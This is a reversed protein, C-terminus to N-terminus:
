DTQKAKAGLEKQIIKDIGRISINQSANFDANCSYGCKLCHFHAQDKRNAKDIHGCRSCRQSTYRPDIMSVAIGTEKAKTKIKQQLDYYTWHRLFKPFDTSQRIGSLDEMQITGCGNKVAYEILAKSYRHNITDRFNSIREQEKYVSSVRTKTGHGIRGEGCVAAQKQLSRKRAEERKAYESVEGGNIVFSGQEGFTSAYLACTEGMDVGLIKDPDLKNQAPKFSYTLIFFWKPRDYLLQCQGLTYEGSLVREYIAHQTNDHLNIRFRVNSALGHEKKHKTSFLNLEVIHEREEDYIKISQKNIPLPQDSKYSPLTMKGIYVDKQSQKYKKWATQIAANLNSSAFDPFRDKLDDYIYGDLRKYGTEELLDLHEGTERKSKENLYDWHYAIKITENLITRTDRILKWVAEQMDKFNGYGDKYTLDYKMVKTIAGGSM